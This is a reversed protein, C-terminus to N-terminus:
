ESRGGRSRRRAEIWRRVVERDFRVYRGIKVIEIHTTAVVDGFSAGVL